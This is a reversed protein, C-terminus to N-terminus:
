RLWSSQTCPCIHKNLERIM